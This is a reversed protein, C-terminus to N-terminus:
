YCGQTWAVDEIMDCHQTANNPLKRKKKQNKKTGVQAAIIDNRQTFVALQLSTKLDQLHDFAIFYTNRCTMNAILFALVKRSNASQVADFISHVLGHNLIWGILNTAKKAIVAGEENMHLEVIVCQMGMRRTHTQKGDVSLNVGTVANRSEDKWGDSTLVAYKGQLSTKLQDAVVDNAKDLLQGSIQKQSPMVNGATSWFLLFLTMVEPDEVWRFQLNASITAWLFQKRVVEEQEPTFPINIGRSLKLHSQKMSAEVKM